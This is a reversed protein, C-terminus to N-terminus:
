TYTTTTPLGNLETARFTNQATVTNSSYLQTKESTALTGARQFQLLTQATHHNFGLAMLLRNGFATMTFQALALTSGADSREITLKNRTTNVTGTFTPTVSVYDYGSDDTAIPTDAVLARDATNAAQEAVTGNNAATKGRLYTRVDAAYAARRTKENIGQQILGVELGLFRHVQGVWEADRRALYDNVTIVHVGQGSLGNLYAPLTAVLTKGEGTAMEAIKGDHLVMGGILQVDYHVMNWTIEGGAATWSNKWYAKQGEIRVYSKQPKAALERDHDLATVELVQNESFRRSTEKVVAFAEPLLEKLIVELAKDREKRLADLEAFIEEKTHIDEEQAAEARAEAIQKDIESLYQAIRSRFELTKQRLEDNSLARFAQFHENIEEVIPMYTKVDRDYKTGFLKKVSNSIFDFM